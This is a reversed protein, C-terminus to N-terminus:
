KNQAECKKTMTMGELSQCFHSLKKEKQLLFDTQFTFPLVETTIRDNHM